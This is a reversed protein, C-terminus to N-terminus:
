KAVEEVQWHQHSPRWETPPGEAVESLIVGSSDNIVADMFLGSMASRIRLTGADTPAFEWHQNPEEVYCPLTYVTGRGLRSGLCVRPLQENRLMLTGNDLVLRQWRQNAGQTCPRVYAWISKEDKAELCRTENENDTVGLNRLVVSNGTPSPLAVKTTELIIWDVLEDTRSAIHQESRAPMGVCGWSSSWSAVAILELSGNRERFAPAGFDGRCISAPQSAPSGDPPDAAVAFLELSHSAETVFKAVQLRDPARETATSGFGAVWHMDGVAPAGRGLALPAVDTVPADLKALVVDGGWRPSALEVINRLQGGPQSLVTKGIVATAPRKLPGNPPTDRWRGSFCQGATIIWQPQVLAGTCTGHDTSVKAVFTYQGDPVDNGNAIAHAPAAQSLGIAVAALIATVPRM